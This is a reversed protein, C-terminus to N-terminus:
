YKQPQSLTPEVSQVLVKQSCSTDSEQDGFINQMFDATINTLFNNQTNNYHNLWHSM